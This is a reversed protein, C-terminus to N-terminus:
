KKPFREKVFTVVEEPHANADKVMPWAKAVAGKKDIVFTSRKAASKGVDFAKSVEQKTDAFLPFNLKNVDTFKQQLDLPDNSIGIVV